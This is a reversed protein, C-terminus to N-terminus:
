LGSPWRPSVADHSERYTKKFFQEYLSEAQEHQFLQLDSPTGNGERLRQWANSIAPDADFRRIGDDLQHTRHFLHDKVRVVSSRTLGSNAVIEDVDKTTM